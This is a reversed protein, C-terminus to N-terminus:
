LEYLYSYIIYPEIYNAYEKKQASEKNIYKTCASAIVSDKISNCVSSDWMYIAHYSLFNDYILDFKERETLTSGIKSKLPMVNFDKLNIKAVKEKLDAKQLEKQKSFATEREVTWIIFSCSSCNDVKWRAISRFFNENIKLEGSKKLADIDKENKNQLTSYLLTIDICGELIRKGVYAGSFGSAYERCDSPSLWAYAFIYGAMYDWASDSPKEWFTDM